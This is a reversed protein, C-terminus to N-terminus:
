VDVNRRLGDVDMRNILDDDNRKIYQLRDKKRISGSEDMADKGFSNLGNCVWITKPGVRRRHPLLVEDSSGFESLVLRPSKERKAHIM